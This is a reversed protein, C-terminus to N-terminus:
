LGIDVDFVDGIEEGLSSISQSQVAVVADIGGSVDLWTHDLQYKLIRMQAWPTLLGISLGIVILNTVYIWLMGPMSWDCGLRHRQGGSADDISTHNTTIRLIIAAIYKAVVYYFFVGLLVPLLATAQVVNAPSDEAGAVYGGLQTIMAVVPAIMIAVIGFGVVYAFFFKGGVEGLSFILNGYRTNGVVFKSRQYHAYPAALGLSILALFGYWYIAKYSEGYAPNFGFHINRYSTYRMNFMRARVILWPTVLGILLFAALSLLPFFWQSVAVVLLLALAILRGRLITLPKALYDFYSGALQLNGYIYRNKRVKAWPSYIGVTVVTLLLNVIWIRFYETGNGHFSFHERPLDAMLSDQSLSVAIGSSGTALQDANLDVQVSSRGQIGRGIGAV